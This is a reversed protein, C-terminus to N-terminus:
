KRIKNHNKPTFEMFEVDIRSKNNQADQKVKKILAITERDAKVWMIKSDVNSASWVEPIKNLKQPHIGMRCHLYFIAYRIRADAYAPSKALVERRADGKVKKPWQRSKKNLEM